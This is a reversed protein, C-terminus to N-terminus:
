PIPQSIGREFSLARPHKSLNNVKMINRIKSLTTKKPSRMGHLSSLLRSCTLIKDNYFTTKWSFAEIM